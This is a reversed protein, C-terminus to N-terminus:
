LCKVSLFVLFDLCVSHNVQILCKWYGNPKPKNKKKRKIVEFMELAIKLLKQTQRYYDGLISLVEIWWYYLSSCLSECSSQTNIRQHTLCSLPEKQFPLCLASVNTLAAFYTSPPIILRSPVLENAGSSTVAFGCLLERRSNLYLVFSPRCPPPREVHCTESWNIVHWLGSFPLWSIPELSPSLHSLSCPPSIYCESRHHCIFFVLTCCMFVVRANNVPNSWMHLAM